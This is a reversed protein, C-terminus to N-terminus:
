QEGGAGGIEVTAVEVEPAPRPVVPTTAPVSGVAAVSLEPIVSTDLSVDAAPAKIDNLFDKTPAANSHAPTTSKTVSSGSSYSSNSHSTNSHSSHNSHTSSSVHSSHSSHSYHSYHGSNSHSRHSSHSSHSSHSRHSSHAAFADSALLISLVLMMSGITLIKNRPINGEEENVFNEISKKIHPFISDDKM